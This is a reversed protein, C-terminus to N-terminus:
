EITEAIINTRYTYKRETNKIQNEAKKVNGFCSKIRIIDEIENKIERRNKLIEVRKKSLKAMSAANVSNFTLFHDIDCLETDCLSLQNKLEDFRKETAVYINKYSELIELVQDYNDYKIQRKEEKKM